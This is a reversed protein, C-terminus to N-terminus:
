CTPPEVGSAPELEFDVAKDGFEAEEGEREFGKNRITSSETGTESKSAPDDFRDMAQM